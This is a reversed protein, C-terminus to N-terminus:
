GRRELRQGTVARSLQCLVHDVKGGPGMLPLLLLRCRTIGRSLPFSLVEDRPTKFQAARQGLSLITDLVMPTYEVDDTMQGIRKVRPGGPGPLGGQPAFALLLTNRWKDSVITLDLLKMDPVSGGRRLSHWYALIDDPIRPKLERVPVVSLAPQPSIPVAVAPTPVVVLIPPAVSSPAISSPVISSPVISAPPPEIPTSAAQEQAEEAMVAIADAASAGDIIEAPTPGPAPMEEAARATADAQDQDDGAMVAIAEAAPADEPKEVAAPVVPSTGERAVTAEVPIGAAGDIEAAAEREIGPAAPAEIVDEGGVAAARPVPAIVADASVDGVMEPQADVEGVEAEVPREAETAVGAESEVATETEPDTESLCAGEIASEAANESEADIQLDVDTPPMPAAAAITEVAIIAATPEAAPQFVPPVPVTTRDLQSTLDGRKGRAFMTKRPLISIGALSSPPPLDATITEGSAIKTDM